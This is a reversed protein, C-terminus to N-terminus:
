KVHSLCSESSVTYQIIKFIIYSPIFLIRLYYVQKFCFLGRFPSEPCLMCLATIFHIFYSIAEELLM